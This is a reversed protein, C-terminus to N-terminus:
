PIVFLVVIQNDTGKKARLIRVLSQTISNSPDTYDMCAHGLTGFRGLIEDFLDALKRRTDHLHGINSVVIHM